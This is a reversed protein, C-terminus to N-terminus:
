AAQGFACEQEDYSGHNVPELTSMMKQFEIACGRSRGPHASEVREHVDFWRVSAGNGALHLHAKCGIAHSLKAITETSLNSSGRFVKTIYAPSVGARRALESNSIGQSKMAANLEALFDVCLREAQYSSTERSKALLANFSKISM